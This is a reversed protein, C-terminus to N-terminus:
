GKTQLSILAEMKKYQEDTAVKFDDYGKKYATMWSNVIKKGEEPLWPSQDLSLKVV